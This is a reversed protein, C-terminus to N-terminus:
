DEKNSGLNNLALEFICTDETKEQRSFFAATFILEFIVWYTDENLSELTGKLLTKFLSKGDLNRSAFFAKVQFLIDNFIQQDEGHSELLEKMSERFTQFEARNLVVLLALMSKPQIIDKAKLAWIKNLGLIQKEKLTSSAEASISLESTM